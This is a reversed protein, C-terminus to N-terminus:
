TRAKRGFVELAATLTASIDDDPEVQHVMWGLAALQAAFRMPGAVFATSAPHRARLGSLQEGLSDGQIFLVTPLADGSLFYSLAPEDVAPEVVALMDLADRYTTVSDIDSTVSMPADALHLSQALSAAASTLWEWHPDYRTGPRNSERRSSPTGTIVIQTLHQTPPDYQRVMLKGRHATAPWHVRRMDDLPQYERLSVGLNGQTAAHASIVSEEDTGIIWSPRFSVPYLNPWVLWEETKGLIQKTQVLGFPDSRFARLPGLTYRGRRPPTVTYRHIRNEGAHMSSEFWPPVPSLKGDVRERLQGSPLGTSRATINLLVSQTTGAILREEQISRRVIARGPPRAMWLWAGVCLVGLFIGIYILDRFGLIAGGILLVLCGFAAAWGRSTPSAVSKM